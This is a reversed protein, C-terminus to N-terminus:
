ILINLFVVCPFLGMYTGITGFDSAYFNGAALSGDPVSLISVKFSYGKEIVKCQDPSPFRAPSFNMFGAM